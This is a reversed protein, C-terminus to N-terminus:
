FLFIAASPSDGDFEYSLLLFSATEHAKSVAEKCKKLKHATLHPASARPETLDLSRVSDEVHSVIREHGALMHDKPQPREDSNRNTQQHQLDLLFFASPNGLYAVDYFDAFVLDGPCPVFGSFRGAEYTMTKM